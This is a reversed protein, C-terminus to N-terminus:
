QLNLYKAKYAMLALDLDCPDLVDVFRESYARDRAVLTCTSGRAAGSRAPSAHLACLGEGHTRDLLRLDRAVEAQRRLTGKDTRRWRGMGRRRQLTPVSPVWQEGCTIPDKPVM